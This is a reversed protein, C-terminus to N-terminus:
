TGAGPFTAVAEDAPPAPGLVTAAAVAATIAATAIPPTASNRSSSGASGTPSCGAALAGVAESSLARADLLSVSAAASAVGNPAARAGPELPAGM